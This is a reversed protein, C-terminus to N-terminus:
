KLLIGCCGQGVCGGNYETQCGVGDAQDVVKLGMSFTGSGYPAPTDAGAGVVLVDICLVITLYM